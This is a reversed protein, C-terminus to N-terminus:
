LSRLFDILDAREEPSLTGSTQPLHQQLVDKLTRASNNHFYADRQSLGRLSPPNFRADEEDEPLDVDYSQPSTYTPPAHCTVCGHNHFLEQGRNVADEDVRDRLRAM